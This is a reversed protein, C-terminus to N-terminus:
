DIYGNMDLPNAYGNVKYSSFYMSYTGSDVTVQWTKTGVATQKMSFVTTYFISGKRDLTYRGDCKSGVPSRTITNTIKLNTTKTLKMTNISRKGLIGTGSWSLRHSAAMVTSTGAYLMMMFLGFTIIRKRRM